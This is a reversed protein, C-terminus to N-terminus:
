LQLIVYTISPTNDRVTESSFDTKCSNVQRERVLLMLKKKKHKKEKETSLLLTKKRNGETLDGSTKISLEGRESQRALKSEFYQTNQELNVRRMQQCMANENTREGGKVQVKMKGRVRM